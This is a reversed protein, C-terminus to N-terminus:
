QLPTAAVYEPDGTGKDVMSAFAWVQGGTVEIKVSGTELNGLDARGVVSQNPNLTYTQLIQEPGATPILKVTVAAATNSVNVVGVNTYYKSDSRIGAVLAPKGPKVNARSVAFGGIGQGFTKGVGKDNYTRAFTLPYIAPAFASTVTVRLIGTSDGVSGLVGQKLIDTYQVFERPHIQVGKAEAVKNGTQDHYALDVTVSSVDPNFITVDSRWEGVHGVGPIVQSGNDTLSLDSERVAQFYVPDDSANDIYSAYAILWQGAPVEIQLSFPRERSLTKVGKDSAIPFQELQYPNLLMAFQGVQQQTDDYVKVTINVPQSNPNVFGVNTRFRDGNRLGALYYKGAGFASGGGAAADIRIAPIFQGYTGGETQNYTRTWIQPAFKTRATIVVPGFDSNNTFVKLFDVYTQTSNRIELTAPIDRLTAHMQLPNQPTVAPDPTYVQVDTRWPGGHTVVPLLFKYEPIDTIVIGPAGLAQGTAANPVDESNRAKVSVPFTGAKTYTHQISVTNGVVDKQSLSDKVGDGFDWAWGTGNVGNTVNVTFTVPVGISGATPFSSFALQPVVKVPTAPGVVVNKQVTVGNPRSTNYIKLKVTYTGDATFTHQAQRTTATSNDGFDWEFKDCTQLTYGFIDAGFTISEGRVCNTTNSFSCGSSPGDYVLTINVSSPGGTCTPNDIAPLITVSGTHTSTSGASNSIRVTVPYTGAESYTHSPRDESSTSGDGFTWQVNDCSQLSSGDRRATFTISNGARCNSGSVCNTTFSASSPATCTPQSGIKITQTISNGTPNSSNRATVRVTYSGNSTYPHSVEMGTQTASGDGFNWVFEDCEQLTHSIVSVNFTIPQNTPCDTYCSAGLGLKHAPPPPGCETPLVTFDESKSVGFVTETVTVNYLGADPLKFTALPNGTGTKVNTTGRRVVWSLQWSAADSAPTSTASISCDMLQHTCNSRVITIDPLKVNVFTSFTAFAADPVSGPAVSLELTVKGGNAAELMALDIPFAPINTGKNMVDTVKKAEAGAANTLTWTYTWQTASLFQTNSTFRAVADYTVTTGTRQAPTITALFPLVTYSRSPISTEFPKDVTFPGIHKGYFGKYAVTHNGLVLGVPIEADPAAPTVLAPGGQPTITWEAHHGELSGDSGDVFEDGPVVKLGSAPVLEGSSKVAIRPTPVKLNVVVTDATSADGDVSVTVTKPDNVENLQDLATYQHTIPVGTTGAQINILGGAEPNDFIWQVNQSGTSSSTAKFTVPDGPFPGTQALPANPNAPGFGPLMSASLGNGELEFVDGMGNPHYFLYTKGDTHKYLYVSNTITRNFNGPQAYGAPATHYYKRFFDDTDLHRLGNGEVKFLQMDFASGAYGAIAVYGGTAHISDPAYAGPYAGAIVTETYGSGAPKFKRILLNNQPRLASPHSEIAWLIGSDDFAMDKIILGNTPNVVLMPERNGIFDDYHYLRLVGAEDALALVRADDDKAWRMIKSTPAGLKPTNRTSVYSPSDANSTNFHVFDPKDRDTVFVHYRQTSSSSPGAKLAFLRYPTVNHNADGIVQVSDSMHSGGTEGKDKVVGWGFVGESVYANGRDDFDFDWLRDTGDALGVLWDANKHEPYFYADFPAIREFPNRKAWGCCAANPAPITNAAIMPAKLTVNFFTSLSYVAFTEGMQLYVRAPATGRAPLIRVKQARLTRMGSNQVIGTTSSDVLRGVFTSLPGGYQYTPKDANEGSCAECFKAGTGSADCLAVPQGVKSPM